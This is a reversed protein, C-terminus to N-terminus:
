QVHRGSEIRDVVIDEELSESGGETEPTSHQFPQLRENTTSRLGDMNAVELRLPTDDAGSYRLSGDEPGNNYTSKLASTRCITLPAPAPTWCYASSVCFMCVSCPSHPLPPRNSPKLASEWFNSVSHWRITQLQVGAFSLPDPDSRSYLKCLNISSLQQFTERLNNKFETNDVQTDDDIPFQFHILM